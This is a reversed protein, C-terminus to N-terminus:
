RPSPPPPEPTGASKRLEQVRKALQDRLAQYKARQLPTLFGSLEKQEAELLDARRHQAQVLESMYQAIKGQDPAAATDQMAARLALRSQREDRQLQNRSKQFRDQVGQLQRAQDDNLNLQRRMAQAFKQRVQRTLLQQSTLPPKAPAGRAAVKGGRVLPRVGASEGRQAVATGAVALTAGLAYPLMRMVMRMVM